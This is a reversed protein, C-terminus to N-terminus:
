LYSLWPSRSRRKVGAFWYCFPFLFLVVGAWVLYVVGLGYGDPGPNPSDFVWPGFAHNHRFYSAGAALGHILPLHLLYFFLPVRGYVILFRALPGRLGEFVGLLTIAPGLTMLLYLLSPPYKHTNVFSFVTRWWEEKVSWPMGPPEPVGSKARVEDPIGQLAVAIPRDGYLNTYRLFVFGAVLMLGLGLLQPRRRNAELLYMAGLGYGAAMVGIWPVLPYGPFFKFGPLNGVNPNFNLLEWHLGGDVFVRFGEGTHLIAWLWGLAGADRALFTDFLNHYAIMFVGFAAVAATPLFVLGSLVVMSGGIAWLVGVGETAFNFNFVWSCRVWSLELFALWLGRSFLFWALEGRTRGRSGYLFAGTGALFVFTPACYHTVLRTLFYAPNTKTLDVPDFPANSFFDRVHDLAMVVIVLGRLLDISDLRSRVAVVPEAGARAAATPAPTLDQIM